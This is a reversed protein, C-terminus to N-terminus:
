FKPCIGIHYCIDRPKEGDVSRILIQPSYTELIRYCMERDNISFKDCIEKFHSIFQKITHTSNIYKQVNIVTEDCIFCTSNQSKLYDQSCVGVQTCAKEPSEYQLIFQIIQPFHNIFETCDPDYKEPLRQCSYQLFHEIETETSNKQVFSEGLNIVFECLSCYQNDDFRAYSADIASGILFMAFLPFLVKGSTM